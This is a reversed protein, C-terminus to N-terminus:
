KKYEWSAGTKQLDWYFLSKVIFGILRPGTMWAVFWERRKMKPCIVGSKSRLWLNHWTKSAPTLM